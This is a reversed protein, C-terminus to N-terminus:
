KRAGQFKMLDKASDFGDGFAHVKSIYRKVTHWATPAKLAGKKIKDLLKKPVGKLKYMGWMEHDWIPFKKFLNDPSRDVGMLYNRGDVMAYVAGAQESLEEVAESLLENTQRISM